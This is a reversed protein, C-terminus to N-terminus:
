KNVVMKQSKQILDLNIVSMQLIAVICNEGNMLNPCDSCKIKSCYKDEYHKIRSMLAQQTEVHIVQEESNLDLESDSVSTINKLFQVGM